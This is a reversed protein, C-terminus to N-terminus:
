YNSCYEKRDIITSYGQENSLKYTTHYTLVKDCVRKKAERLPMKQVEPYKIGKSHRVINMNSPYLKLRQGKVFAKREGNIVMEKVESEDFYKLYEWKDEPLEMDSLYATLYAAVNTIGDIKQVKTFGHGWLREFDANPIYPAKENWIYLLHHHFSGRGQPELIDIFEPIPLGKKQLYYKFRQNFKRFDQYVKERDQVNDKYTLCCWRVYSPEVVNSNILERIRKMSKRVSGICESKDKAYTEYEKIEGTSKVLFEEKSLKITRPETNPNSNYKVETLNGMEKVTVFEDDKINITQSVKEYKMAEGKKQQIPNVFLIILKACKSPLRECALPKVWLASLLM